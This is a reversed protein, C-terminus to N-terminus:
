TPPAKDKFEKQEPNERVAKSLFDGFSYSLILLTLKSYRPPAFNSLLSVTHSAYCAVGNVAQEVMTDQMMMAKNGTHSPPTAATIIIKREVCLFKYFKIQM